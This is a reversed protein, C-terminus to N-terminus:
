RREDGEIVKALQFIYKTFRFNDLAGSNLYIVTRKEIGISFLFGYRLDEKDYTFTIARLIKSKRALQRLRDPAGKLIYLYHFRRKGDIIDEMSVPEAFFLYKSLRDKYVSKILTRLYEATIFDGKDYVIGLRIGRDQSIKNELEMDLLIIKPYIKVQTKLLLENYSYGWLGSIYMFVFLFLRLM